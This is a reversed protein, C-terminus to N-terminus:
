IIDKIKKIYLSINLNGMHLTIHPTPHKSTQFAKDSGHRGERQWGVGGYPELHGWPDCVKPAM